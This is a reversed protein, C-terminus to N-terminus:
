ATKRTWKMPSRTFGNISEGLEQHRSQNYRLHLQLLLLRPSGSSPKRLRRLIRSDPFKLARDGAWSSFVRLVPAVLSTLGIRSSTQNLSGAPEGGNLRWPNQDRRRRRPRSDDRYAVRFRHALPVPPASGTDQIHKIMCGPFPHKLPAPLPDANTPWEPPGRPCRLRSERHLCQRRAPRM